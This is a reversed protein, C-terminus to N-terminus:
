NILTIKAFVNGTNGTVTGIGNKNPMGVVTNGKVTTWSYGEGDIM